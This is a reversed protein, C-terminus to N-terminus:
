GWKELMENKIVKDVLKIYKNFTKYDKHGTIKMVVEPRMGKELSLTIFTRRATHTSILNYKSESVEIRKNGSYKTMTILTDIKALKCIEKLYQNMKQNSIPKIFDEDNLYSQIIVKSKSVLPIRLVEKTKITNVILYDERIDDPKIKVVDSYRLGTFCSLCFLDRVKELRPVNTLDLDVVSNLEKEELYVIDIDESVNKFKRFILFKNYGKETAWNLFAKLTSIYKGITNNLKEQDLFFDVFKEYFELDITHFDIVTKKKTSFSLLHSRLSKYKKITGISNPSTEIFEDLAKFLSVESLFDKQLAKDLEERLITNTPFKSETYYKTYIKNLEIAIKQLRANKEASGIYSSRVEMKRSNWEIPRVKEGTSYKFKLGNYRFILFILTQEKSSSDKLNFRISPM